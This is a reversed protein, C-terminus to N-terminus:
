NRVKGNRLLSVFSANNWNFGKGCKCEIWNCGPGKEILIGCKPNPCRKTEALTFPKPRNCICCGVNFYNLRQWHTYCKIHFSHHGCFNFVNTTKIPEMCVLCIEPDNKEKGSM